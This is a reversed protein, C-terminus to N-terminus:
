IKEKHKIPVGKKFFNGSGQWFVKQVRSVELAKERKM